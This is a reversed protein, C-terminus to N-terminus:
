DEEEGFRVPESDFLRPGSVCGFTIGALEQAPLAGTGRAGIGLM